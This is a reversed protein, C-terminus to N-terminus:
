LERVFHPLAVGLGIHEGVASQNSCASLTGKRLPGQLEEFLPLLVSEPEIFDGVASYDACRQPCHALSPRAARPLIHCPLRWGSAIVFVVVSQDVCASLTAKRLSGQREELLPPLVSEPGTYDNVAIRDGCASHNTRWFPGQLDKLLHYLM